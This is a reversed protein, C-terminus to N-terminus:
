DNFSSTEMGVVVMVVVVEVDEVCFEYEHSDITVLM